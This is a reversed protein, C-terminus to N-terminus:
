RVVVCFPPSSQTVVRAEQSVNIVDQLDFADDLSVAPPPVLGFTYTFPDTAVTWSGQSPLAATRATASEDRSSGSSSWLLAKTLWQPREVISLRSRSYTLLSNDIL